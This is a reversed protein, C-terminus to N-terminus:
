GPEKRKCKFTDRGDQFCIDENTRTEGRPVAGKGEEREDWYEKSSLTNGKWKSKRRSCDPKLERLRGLVRRAMIPLVKVNSVRVPAKRRQTAGSLTPWEGGLVRKGYSRLSSAGIATKRSQKPLIGKWRKIM